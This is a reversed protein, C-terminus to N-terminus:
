NAGAEGALTSGRLAEVLIKIRLTDEWLLNRSPVGLLLVPEVARPLLLLLKTSHLQM